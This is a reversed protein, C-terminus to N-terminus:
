RREHNSEESEKRMNKRIKLMKKLTDIIQDEDEEIMEKSIGVFNVKKTEGYNEKASQQSLNQVKEEKSMKTLSQNDM